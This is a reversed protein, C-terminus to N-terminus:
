VVPNAVSDDNIEVDNNNIDTFQTDEFFGADGDTSVDTKGTNDVRFTYKARSQNGHIDYVSYLYVVVIKSDDFAGVELIEELKGRFDVTIPNKVQEGFIDLDTVEEDSYIVVYKADKLGKDDSVKINIKTGTRIEALSKPTVLEIRPKVEDYAYYGGDFKMEVKNDKVEFTYWINAENGNVDTVVFEIKTYEEDLKILDLNQELAGSFPYVSELVVENKSEDESKKITYKVQELGKNDSFKFRVLTEETVEAMNEPSLIGVRPVEEDKEERQGEPLTFLISIDELKNGSKDVIESILLIRDEQPIGDLRLQYIQKEGLDLEEVRGNEDWLCTYTISRLGENDELVIIVSDGDLEIRNASKEQIDSNLTNNIALKITPKETDTISPQEAPQSNEEEKEVKFIFTAETINGAADVLEQVYLTYTGEETPLEGVTVEQLTGGSFDEQVAAQEEGWFMKYKISKLEKNDTVKLIIEAGAEITEESPELIEVKPAETDEEQGCVCLKNIYTHEYTATQATNCNTCTWVQQHTQATINTFTVTNPVPYNAHICQTPTPTSGSGDDSWSGGSYGTDSGVGSATGNNIDTNMQVEVTEGDEATHCKSCVKKGDVTMWTTEKGYFACNKNNCVKVNENNFPDLVLDGLQEELGDKGGAADELNELTIDNGDENELTEGNKIKNVCSPCLYKGKYEHAIEAVMEAGCTECNVLKSSLEGNTIANAHEQCIFLKTKEYVSIPVLNTCGAISCNDCHDLCRTTLGTAFGTDINKHALIQSMNTRTFKTCSNEWCFHSVCYNSYFSRDNGQYVTPFSKRGDSLNAGVVAKVCRDCTHDACFVNEGERQQDPCELNEISPIFSDGNEITWFFGCAHDQACFKNLHKEAPPEGYTFGDSAVFNSCGAGCRACNKCVFFVKSADVANGGNTPLRVMSLNASMGSALVIDGYLPVIGYKTTVYDNSVIGYEGEIYIEMDPNKIKVLQLDGDAAYLLAREGSSIKELVKNSIYYDVGSHYTYGGLASNLKITTNGVAPKNNGTYKAGCRGCYYGVVRDAALEELNSGKYCM